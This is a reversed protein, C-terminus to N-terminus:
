GPLAILHVGGRLILWDVSIDRKPHQNIKAQNAGFPKGSPIRQVLTALPGLALRGSCLVRSMDNLYALTQAGRLAAMPGRLLKNLPDRACHARYSDNNEGSCAVEISQVPPFTNCSSNM